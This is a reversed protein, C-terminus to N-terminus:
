SYHPWAYTAHLYAEILQSCSDLEVHLLSLFFQCAARRVIGAKHHM